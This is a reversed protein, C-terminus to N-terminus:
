KEENAVMKTPLTQHNNVKIFLHRLIKENQTLNKKIIEIKSGNLEIQYFKYFAKKYNNINFSLDRLGWNETSFLKGSEKEINEIFSKEEKEIVNNSLDPSFLLVAEFKNM